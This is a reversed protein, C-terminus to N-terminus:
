KVGELNLSILTGNEKDMHPIYAQSYDDVESHETNRWDWHRINRFGANILCDKLTQYDFISHHFNYLYDQRGMIPGRVLELKYTELYLLCIARFSPVSLRLIGDPKLVRYWEKLVGPVDTWKFHELTHCSYILECSNSAITPLIEIPGVFDVHPFEVADVHYFGPIFRKGCGLHLKM